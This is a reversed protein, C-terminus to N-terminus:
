INTAACSWSGFKRDSKMSATWGSFKSPSMALHYVDAGERHGSEHVLTADLELESRNQTSSDSTFVYIQDTGAYFMGKYVGAPGSTYVDLYEVKEKKDSYAKQQKKLKEILSTM